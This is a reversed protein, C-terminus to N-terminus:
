VPEKKEEVIEKALKALGKFLEAGVNGDGEKAKTLSSYELLDLAAMRQMKEDDSHDRLKVLLELNQPATADFRELTYEIARKRIEDRLAQGEKSSVVGLVEEPSIGYLNGVAQAGQGESWRLVIDRNRAVENGEYQGPIRPEISMDIENSNTRIM